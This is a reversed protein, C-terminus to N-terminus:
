RRFDKRCNKWVVKPLKLSIVSAVMGTIINFFNKYWKKGKTFSSTIALYSSIDILERTSLANLDAEIALYVEYGVIYKSSANRLIIRTSEFSGKYHDVLSYPSLINM